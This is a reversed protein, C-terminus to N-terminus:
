LYFSFMLDKDSVLCVKRFIFPVFLSNRILLYSAMGCVGQVRGRRRLSLRKSLNRKISRVGGHVCSDAIQYSGDASELELVRFGISVRSRSSKPSVLIKANVCVDDVQTHKRRKRECQSRIAAHNEITKEEDETFEFWIDNGTFNENDFEQLLLMKNNSYGDLKWYAERDELMLTGLKKEKIATLKVEKAKKIDSILQNRNGEIPTAGEKMDNKLGERLEKEKAKAARLKAKADNRREAARGNQEEILKRLKVTSLAEDCLLNLIHLKCSPSLKNYGLTGKNVFELHLEKSMFALENIYAGLDNLWADGNTIYISNKEGTDEKIVSLLNKHFDAILEPVIEVEQDRAIDQLIQEPQGKRIQFIEGFSNCFEYLQIAPGVDKVELDAGLINTVLSGRPLVKKNPSSVASNYGLISGNKDKALSSEGDFNKNVVINGKLKTQDGEVLLEEVSNEIRLSRGTSEEDAAGQEGKKATHVLRGTPQQGKKRRCCSCNCIGRCASGPKWRDWKKTMRKLLCRHCYKIPCVGKKKVQTCAVAFNRKMQRCQHCAKGAMVIEMSSLAQAFRLDWIELPTSLMEAVAVVYSGKNLLKHVSTYGLTNVAHDLIEALMEWNKKRYLRYSCMGRCKSFNWVKQAVGEASQYCIKRNELDYIQCESVHVGLLPYDKVKLQLPKVFSEEAGEDRRKLDMWWLKAVVM